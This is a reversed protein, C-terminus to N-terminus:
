REVRITTWRRFFRLCSKEAWWWEKPRMTSFWEMLWNTLQCAERATRTSIESCKPWRMSKRSPFRLRWSCCCRKRPWSDEWTKRKLRSTGSWNKWTSYSPTQFTFTMKRSSLSYGRISIPRNQPSGSTRYFSWCSQFWIRSKWRACRFANM